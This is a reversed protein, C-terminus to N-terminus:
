RQSPEYGLIAVLRQRDQAFGAECREAEEATHPEPCAVRWSAIARQFLLEVQKRDVELMGDTVMQRLKTEYMRAIAVSGMSDNDVTRIIAEAEDLQLKSLLPEARLVAQQIKEQHIRRWIQNADKPM